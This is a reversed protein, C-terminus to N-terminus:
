RCFMSLLSRLFTPEVGVPPTKAVVEEPVAWEPKKEFKSMDPAKLYYTEKPLNEKLCHQVKKNQTRFWYMYTLQFKLKALDQQDNHPYLGDHYYQESWDSRLRKKIDRVQTELKIREENWLKLDLM